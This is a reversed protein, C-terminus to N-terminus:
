CARLAQAASWCDLVCQDTRWSNTCSQQAGQKMSGAKMSGIAGKIHQVGQHGHWTYVHCTHISIQKQALRITHMCADAHHRLSAHAFRQLQRIHFLLRSQSTRHAGQMLKHQQTCSLKSLAMASNQHTDICIGPCSKPDGRPDSHYVAIHSPYANSRPFPTLSAILCDLNYQCLSICSMGSQWKYDVHM